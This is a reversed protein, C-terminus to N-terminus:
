KNKKNEYEDLVAFLLMLGFGYIYSPMNLNGFMYMFLAYSLVTIIVKVIFM